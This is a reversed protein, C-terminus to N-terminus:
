NKKSKPSLIIEIIINSGNEIETKKEINGFKKLDNIFNDLKIKGLDIHIVQRGKFKMSIKVKNGKTLIKKIKNIKTDIDNQEIQPNLRIEKVRKKSVHKIKKKNEYCHKNYDMIKYVHPNSRANVCVLDLGCEEARKKAEKFTVNGIKTGDNAILIVIEDM